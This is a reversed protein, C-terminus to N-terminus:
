KILIKEDIRVVFSGQKAWVFDYPKYLVKLPTAKESEHTTIEESPEPQADIPEQIPKEVIVTPQVETEPEVFKAPPNVTGFRDLAAQYTEDFKGASVMAILSLVTKNKQFSLSAVNDNADFPRITKHTLFDLEWKAGAYRVPITDRPVKDLEASDLVKAPWWQKLNTFKL